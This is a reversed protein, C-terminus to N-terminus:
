ASSSPNGLRGRAGQTYFSSKRWFPQQITTPLDHLLWSPTRKQHGPPGNRDEPTPPTCRHTCMWRNGGTTVIRGLHGTLDMSIRPSQPTRMRPHADSCGGPTSCKLAQALIAQFIESMTLGRWQTIPGLAQSGAMSTPGHAQGRWMTSM